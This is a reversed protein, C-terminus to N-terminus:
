NADQTTSIQIFDHINTYFLYDTSESTTNPHFIRMYVKCHEVTKPMVPVCRVKKNKGELYAVPHTTDIKLDCIKMDLLERVRAGTDYLLSMFFRDRQGNRRRTNPQELVSKLANESLYEM